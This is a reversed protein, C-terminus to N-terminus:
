GSGMRVVWRRLIWKLIIRDGEPKGAASELV